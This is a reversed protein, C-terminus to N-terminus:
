RTSRLAKRLPAQPAMRRTGFEWAIAGPGFMQVQSYAGQPGEGSRTRVTLHRPVSVRRAVREAAKGLAEATEESSALKRLGDPRHVLRYDSM